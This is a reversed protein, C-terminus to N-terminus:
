IRVHNDKVSLISEDLYPFVINFGTAMLVCDVHDIKSGDTFIVGHGNTTFEKVNPKIIVSGCLIRNALDDNIFPHQEITSLFLVFYAFIKLTLSEGLLRHNPKLGYIEHNFKGNLDREMAWNVLSPCYKQIASFPANSRVIDLPWGNPGIRNLVWTGRRTSM